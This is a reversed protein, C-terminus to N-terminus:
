SSSNVGSINPLLGKSSPSVGRSFSHQWAPASVELPSVSVPESFASGWFLSSSNPHPAMAPVIRKPLARFWPFPFRQKRGGAKETRELAGQQHFGPSLKCPKLRLLLLFTSESKLSLHKVALVFYKWMKKGKSISNGWGYYKEVLIQRICAM